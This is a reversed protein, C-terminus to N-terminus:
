NVLPSAAKVARQWPTEGGITEETGEPELEEAEAETDAETDAEPEPLTESLALVLILKVVLVEVPEVVGTILGDDSGLMEGLLTLRLVLMDEEFLELAGADEAGAGVEVGPAALLFATNDTANTSIKAAMAAMTM